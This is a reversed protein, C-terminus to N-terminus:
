WGRSACHRRIITRLFCREFCSGVYRNKCAEHLDCLSV